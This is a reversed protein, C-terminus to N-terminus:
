LMMQWLYACMSVSSHPQCLSALSLANAATGNFVFFVECDADFIRRFLDCAERTWFDNGYSPQHGSNVKGIYKLAEPCIGSYNDSAFQQLMSQRAELEKKSASATLRSDRLFPAAGALSRRQRM